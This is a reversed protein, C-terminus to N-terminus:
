TRVWRGGGGRGAAPLSAAVAAGGADLIPQRWRRRRRPGHKGRPQRRWVSGSVRTHKDRHRAPAAAADTAGPGGGGARGPARVGLHAPAPGPRVPNAPSGAPVRRLARPLDLRRRGANPHPQPTISPTNRTCQVPSVPRLGRAAGSACRRGDHFVLSCSPRRMAPTPCTGRTFSQPKVPMHAQSSAARPGANVRRVEFGFSQVALRTLGTVAALQAPLAAVVRPGADARLVLSADPVRGARDLAAGEIPAAASDALHLELQQLEPLLDLWAPPRSFGLLPTGGDASQQPNHTHAAAAAPAPAPGLALCTLGGLAGLVQLAAGDAEFFAAASCRVALSRLQPAGAGLSLAIASLNEHTWAEAAAASVAAGASTAAPESALHSSGSACCSLLLELSTVSSPPPLARLLAGPDASHLRLTRLRSAAALLPRTSPTVTLSASLALCALPSAAAQQQQRCTQLDIHLLPGGALACGRHAHTARGLPLLQAADVPAARRWARSTCSVCARDALPLWQAVHALVSDPIDSMTHRPCKNGLHLRGAHHRLAQV